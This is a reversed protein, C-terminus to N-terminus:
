RMLRVVGVEIEEEERLFINAVAQPTAIAMPPTIVHGNETVGM